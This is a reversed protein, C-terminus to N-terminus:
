LRNVNIHEIISNNSDYIYNTLLKILEKLRQISEVIRDISESDIIKKEKIEECNNILVHVISMAKQDPSETFSEEVEWLVESSSQKATINRNEERLFENEEYLNQTAEQLSSVDGELTDIQMKLQDIQKDYSQILMEMERNNEVVIEDKQKEIEKKMKEIICSNETNIVEIQNHLDEMEKSYKLIESKNAQEEKELDRKLNQNEIELFRVKELLIDTEKSHMEKIFCLEANHKSISDNIESHNDLLSNTINVNKERKGKIEQYMILILINLETMSDLEIEKQTAAVKSGLPNNRIITELRKIESEKKRLIEEM